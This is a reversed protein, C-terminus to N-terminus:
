MCGADACIQEASRTVGLIRVDDILGFFPSSGTPSNGGVNLGNPMNTPIGLTHPQVGVQKGQYYVTISAGDFTCAVHQWTAAVLQNTGGHADGGGAIICHLAGMADFDLEYQRDMDVVVAAGAIKTPNIWAEITLRSVDLSTSHPAHVLSGDGVFLAQGERGAVLTATDLTLNNGNLTGDRAIQTPLPDEFQWCGVAGPEDCYGVAFDPPRSMEGAGGGLDFADVQFQCGCALLAAWALRPIV